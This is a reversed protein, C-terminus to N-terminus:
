MASLTQDIPALSLAENAPIGVVGIPQQQTRSTDASQAIALAVAVAPDLAFTLGPDRPGATVLPQHAGISMPADTLLETGYFDQWGFLTGFQEYLNFGAQGLPSSSLLRYASLTSLLDANGITGGHGPDTLQPDVNMGSASGDVMEQQMGAQWEALSHFVDGEVIIVRFGGGNMYYANGQFHIEDPNINCYAFTVLNVNASTQIINNRINLNTGVWGLIGIAASQSDYYSDYYVTNNYIDVNNAITGVYIGPYGNAQGDHESINYRVVIGSIPYLSEQGFVMFGSGQNDHSYNYQMLSNTVNVDFEFGNADGPRLPNSRNGYSENFQFTVNNSDYAWMGGGWGGPDGNDHTVCREVMVRDATGILIGTGTAEDFPIGDITGLNHYAYVHGIYANFIEKDNSDSLRPGSLIVGNIHNDHFSSDTINIDAFGSRGRRGEINIGNIGFDKVEVHDVQIYSLIVNAPLDNYFDIGDGHNTTIGGGYFNINSIVFGATDAGVFGPATGPMITARGTGYSTITIPRDSTGIERPGTFILGGNFTAGGKFEVTDSPGFLHHNVKQITQWPADPSTGLNSDNGAPDVYYTASMVVRRELEEVRPRARRRSKRSTVVGRNRQSQISFVRKFMM